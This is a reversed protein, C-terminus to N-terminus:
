LELDLLDSARKQDRHTHVCVCMHYAYMCASLVSMLMFYFLHIYFINFSWKWFM